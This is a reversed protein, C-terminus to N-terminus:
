AAQRYRDFKAAAVQSRKVYPRYSDMKKVAEEADYDAQLGLWLHPTTEFYLGLRIATDQTISRENRIIQWIRREDVGIDKALRYVSLELPELFDKLLIDGPHINPLREM